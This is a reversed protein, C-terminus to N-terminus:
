KKQTALFVLMPGISAGLSQMIFGFDKVDVLFDVPDWSM